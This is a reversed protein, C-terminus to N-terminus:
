IPKEETLEFPQDTDSHFAAKRWHYVDSATKLAILLLLGAIPEGMAM